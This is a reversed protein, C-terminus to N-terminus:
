LQDVQGLAELAQQDVKQLLLQPFFSHHLIM